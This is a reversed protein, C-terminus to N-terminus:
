WGQDDSGGSVPLPVPVCFGGSCPRPGGDPALGDCETGADCAKTCQGSRCSLSAGCDGADGCCRAGFSGNGPVCAVSDGTEDSAECAAVAVWLSLVLTWTSTSPQRRM